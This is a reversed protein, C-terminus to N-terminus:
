EFYAYKKKLVALGAAPWDAELLALMAVDMPEVSRGEGDRLLGILYGVFPNHTVYIVEQQAYRELLALAAQPDSDPTILDSEVMPLDGLLASAIEATQCTRVYPSHVILEASALLDRRKNVQQSVMMRGVDTLQRQFDETLGFPEAQGHRMLFLKM